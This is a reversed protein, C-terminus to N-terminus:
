LVYLNSEMIISMNNISVPGPREPNLFFVRLIQEVAVQDKQEDFQVSLADLTVEHLQLLLSLVGFYLGLYVLATQLSIRSHGDFLLVWGVCSTISDL